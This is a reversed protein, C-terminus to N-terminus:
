DEPINYSCFGTNDCFAGSDESYDLAFPDTNFGGLDLGDEGPFLKPEFLVTSAIKFLDDFFGGRLLGLPVLGATQDRFHASGQTSWTDVLLGSEAQFAINITELNQNASRAIYQEQNFLKSIVHDPNQIPMSISDQGSVYYGDYNPTFNATGGLWSFPKYLLNIGDNFFEIADYLGYGGITLFTPTDSMSAPNVTVKDLSVLDKTNSTWFPNLENQDLVTNPVSDITAYAHGLFRAPVEQRLEFAGKEPFATVLNKDIGNSLTEASDHWVTREWAMYRAAQPATMNIDAYKGLIPLILFLPVLVTAAAVIFEVMSQGQQRINNLSRM